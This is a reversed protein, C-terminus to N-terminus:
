NEKLVILKSKNDLTGSYFNSKSAFKNSSFDIVLEGNLQRSLSKIQYTDLYDFSRNKSLYEIKFSNKIKLDLATKILSLSHVFYVDNNIIVPNCTNKLKKPFVGVLNNQLNVIYANGENNGDEDFYTYAVFLLYDQDVLIKSIGQLHESLLTKKGNSIISLTYSNEAKEKMILKVKKSRIELVNNENFTQLRIGSFRTIYFNTTGQNNHISSAAKTSSEREINGKSTNTILILNIMLIGLVVGIILKKSTSVNSLM